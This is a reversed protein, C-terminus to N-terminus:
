VLFYSAGMERLQVDLQGSKGGSLRAIKVNWNSAGIFRYARRIELLSSQCIEKLGVVAVLPQSRGTIM